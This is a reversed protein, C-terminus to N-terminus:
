VTPPTASDKSRLELVGHAVREVRVRNGPKFGSRELWYGQLRIKPRIKGAWPDGDEEIKLTRSTAEHRTTNQPYDPLPTQGPVPHKPLAAVPLKTPRHKRPIEEDNHVDLISEEPLLVTTASRDSETILWFKVGRATHYVSWVRTREVLARDNAAREHEYLDGWDGAQHRQIGTLIDEETLQLRANETTFIKGLRFKATPFPKTSV